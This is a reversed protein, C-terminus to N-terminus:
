TSWEPLLSIRGLRNDFARGDAFSSEVQFGEAFEVWDLFQRSSDFIGASVLYRGPAFPNKFKVTVTGTTGQPRHFDVTDRQFSAALCEGDDGYLLIFFELPGADPKVEFDVSIQIPEFIPYIPEVGDSSNLRISTIRARGDGAIHRYAAAEGSRPMLKMYHGIAEVPTADTSTPSAGIAEIYPRAGREIGVGRLSSAWTMLSDRARPFFCLRLPLDDTQRM